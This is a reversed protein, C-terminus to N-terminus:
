TAAVLRYELIEFTSGIEMPDSHYDNLYPNIQWWNKPADSPSNLYLRAATLIRAACDSLRHTTEPVNKPTIHKENDSSFDYPDFSSQSCGSTTASAAINSRQVPEVYNVLVRRHKTCYENGM